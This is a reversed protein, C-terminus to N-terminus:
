LGGSVGYGQGATAGGFQFGRFRLRVGAAAGHEGDWGIDAVWGGDRSEECADFLGERTEVEEEVVGAFARRRNGHFLDREFLPVGDHGHVQGSGEEASLVGDPQHLLLRRAAARMTLLPDIEACLGRTM